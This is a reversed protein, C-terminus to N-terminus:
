RKHMCKKIIVEVDEIEKESPLSNGMQELLTISIITFYLLEWLMYKPKPNDRIIDVCQQATKEDLFNKLNKILNANSKVQTM